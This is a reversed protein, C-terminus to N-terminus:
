GSDLVARMEQTLTRLKVRTAEEFRGETEIDAEIDQVADYTWAWRSRNAEAKKEAETSPGPHEGPGGCGDEVGM